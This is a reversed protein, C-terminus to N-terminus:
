HFDFDDECWGYDRCDECSSVLLSSDTVCYPGRVCTQYEIVTGAFYEAPGIITHSSYFEDGNTGVVSEGPELERERWANMAIVEDTTMGSQDGNVLASAWHAPAIITRVRM